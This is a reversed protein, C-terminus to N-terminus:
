HFSKWDKTKVEPMEGKVLKWFSSISKAIKWAVLKDAEPGVEELIDRFDVSLIQQYKRISQRSHILFLPRWGILRGFML